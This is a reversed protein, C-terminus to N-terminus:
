TVRRVKVQRRITDVDEQTISVDNILTAATGTATARTVAEKLTEGLLLSQVFGAVASDGAGITNTVTVRPPHAIWRENESVLLMGRAGMSVLVIDIGRGRVEVAADVLARLDKLRRGILRELEHVNPKIIHPEAKLGALFPEDDSDLVVTAGKRKAIEVIKQYIISNVGAPLSGSLIVYNADKLGRILDIMEILEFSQIFPGRLNFSIQRNRAIEHIFVNTRTEASIRIFECDVGLNFLCGELEQGTFGGAFGIAKNEVGLRTLAKSVDIGKGGAYREDGDVRNPNDYEISDVTLIRDLAPNLTITYIM